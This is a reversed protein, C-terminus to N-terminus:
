YHLRYAGREVGDDHYAVPEEIAAVRDGDLATATAVGEVRETWTPGEDIDLARVAHVSADRERFHQAVPVLLRNERTAVGHVFGGVDASWRETGGEAGGDGGVAVGVAAHENPHRAATERGAEPYTNGVLFVAGDATAHVHNPYAYVTEDDREVPRGLDIRGQVTDKGAGSRPALVYGRYDAHSAAVLRGDPLWSIDGVRRDGDGPPDWSWAREGSEADLVVLGERHDGPCRNYGVALRSREAAERLTLSIPSADARFRWRVRGESDIALVVSRFVREGDGEEGREYRRSAVYAVDADADSDGSVAIDVVFPRLFRTERDPEGVDDTTRYRWRLSGTDADHLRLEGATGRAGALVGGAFPVLSVVSGAGEDTDHRWRVEGTEPDTAVLTGDALGAVVAGDIVCVASRRGLQRSGAPDLDGLDLSRSLNM